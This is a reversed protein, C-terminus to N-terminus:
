PRYSQKSVNENINTVETDFSSRLSIHGDNKNSDNLNQSIDKCTSEDDNLVCKAAEEILTDRACAINENTSFSATKFRPDLLTAIAYFNNNEVDSLYYEM